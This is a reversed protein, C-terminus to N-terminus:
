GKIKCFRFVSSFCEYCLEWEVAKLSSDSLSVDTVPMLLILSNKTSNTNKTYKRLSFLHIYKHVLHWTELM